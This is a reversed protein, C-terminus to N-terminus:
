IFCYEIYIGTLSESDDITISFGTTTLWGSGSLKYLVNQKVYSGGVAEYRYVNFAVTVPVATFVSSFTVSVSKSALDTLIDKEMHTLSGSEGFNSSPMRKPEDFTSHDVMYMLEDPNVYGPDGPNLQVYLDLEYPRTQTLAM